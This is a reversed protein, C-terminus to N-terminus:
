LGQLEVLVQTGCLTADVAEDASHGRSEEGDTVVQQLDPRIREIRIGIAVVRQQQCNLVSVTGRQHAHQQLLSSVSVTLAHIQASIVGRRQHIQRHLQVRGSNRLQEDRM